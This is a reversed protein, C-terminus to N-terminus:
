AVGGCWCARTGTCLHSHTAEYERIVLMETNDLTDHSNRVYDRLKIYERELALCPGCVDCDGRHERNCDVCRSAPSAKAFM